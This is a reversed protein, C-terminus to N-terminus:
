LKRQLTETAMKRYRSTYEKCGRQRSDPRLELGGLCMQTGMWQSSVLRILSPSAVVIAGYRQQGARDEVINALVTVMWGVECDRRICLREDTELWIEDKNWLVKSQRTLYFADTPIGTVKALGVCLASVRCGTAVKVSLHRGDVGQVFM